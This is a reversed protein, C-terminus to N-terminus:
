PEKTAPAESDGAPALSEVAKLIKQDANSADDDPVFGTGILTPGEPLKATFVLLPGKKEDHHADNFQYLNVELSGVKMTKAPRKPWTVKRLLGVAAVHNVANLARDRRTAEDESSWKEYSGVSLVAGGEFAITARDDEAYTWGPPLEMAWNTKRIKARLGPQVVCKESLSRCLPPPAPEPPPPPPPPAPKAVPPPPPHGCAAVALLAVVAVPFLHRAWTSGIRPRTFTPSRARTM